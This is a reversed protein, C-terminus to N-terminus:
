SAKRRHEPESEIETSIRSSDNRCHPAPIAGAGRCRGCYLQQGRKKGRGQCDPCVQIPPRVAVIGSGKCVCCTLTSRVPVQGRGRCFACQVAPSDLCVKGSGRCVPCLSEKPWQGTGRCFACKYEKGYLVKPANGLSRDAPTAASHLVIGADRRASASVDDAQRASRSRSREKPRASGEPATATALAGTGVITKKWDWSM